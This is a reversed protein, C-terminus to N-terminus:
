KYKDKEQIDVDVHRKIREKDQNNKQLKGIAKM